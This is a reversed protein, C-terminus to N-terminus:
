KMTSMNPLFAIKRLSNGDRGLSSIITKFGIYFLYFLPIYVYIKHLFFKVVYLIDINDRYKDSVNIDYDKSM